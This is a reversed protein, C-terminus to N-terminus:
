KNWEWFELANSKIIDKPILRNLTLQFNGNDFKTPLWFIKYKNFESKWVDSKFPILSYFICEEIDTGEQNLTAHFIYEATTTYIWGPKTGIHQRTEPDDSNYIHSVIEMLWSKNLCTNTRTKIETSYRRGQKTSITLDTGFGKQVSIEDKWIVECDKGFRLKFVNIWNKRLTPNNSNELDQKFNRAQEM